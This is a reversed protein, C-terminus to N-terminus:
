LINTVIEKAKQKLKGSVQLERCAMANCLWLMEYPSSFLNFIVRMFFVNNLLETGAKQLIHWV